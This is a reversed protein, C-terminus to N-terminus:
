KLIAVVPMRVAIITIAKHNNPLITIAITKPTSANIKPIKNVNMSLARLMMLSEMTLLYNTKIRPSSPRLKIMSSLLLPLTPLKNSKM